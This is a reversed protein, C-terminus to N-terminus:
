LAAFAAMLRGELDGRGFRYLPGGGDALLLRLRAMGRATVPRPSHLRLADLGRARARCGGRVAMGAVASVDSPCRLANRNRSQPEPILPLRRRSCSPGVGHARGLGRLSGRSGSLIRRSGSRRPGGGPQRNRRGDPEHRQGIRRVGRPALLLATRGPDRDRRRHGEAVHRRFIPFQQEHASSRRFTCSRWSISAHHNLPEVDGARVRGLQHPSM